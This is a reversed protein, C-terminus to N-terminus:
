KLGTLVIFADAISQTKNKASVGCAKAIDERINNAFDYATFKQGDKTQTKIRVNTFKLEKDTNKVSKYVSNVTNKKLWSNVWDNYNETGLCEDGLNLKANEDTTIRLTIEIGNTLLDNFRINMQNQFDSINNSLDEKILLSINKGEGNNGIDPRTISAITKNTYVDIATLIYCLIKKPNRSNPDQKFEYDIEIIYDPRATNMLITKADNSTGEVFDMAKENNIQKIQHELNELPYNSKSFAEEISAIVFKLESDQIFSKSYNRDYHIVGHNEVEKICGLRKLLADSPIVMLTPYVLNKIEDHTGEKVNRNGCSTVLSIAVILFYYKYKIM